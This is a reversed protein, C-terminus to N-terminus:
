AAVYTIPRAPPWVNAYRHRFPHRRHNLSARDDDVPRFRALVSSSNPARQRLARSLPRSLDVRRYWGLSCQLNWYCCAKPNAQHRLSSM